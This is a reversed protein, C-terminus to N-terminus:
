KLFYFAQSLDLADRFQNKKKLSLSGEWCNVTCGPKDAEASYVSRTQCRRATPAKYSVYCCGRHRGM